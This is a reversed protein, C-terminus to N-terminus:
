SISEYFEGKKYINGEEIIVKYIDLLRKHNQEKDHTMKAKQRAKESFKLAIEENRFIECIYYALMYPADSQYLYGENKHTLLDSIGGVNSAVIPLGLMMAEGLSNPSNEITSPCVFVHSKLYQDCMKREDMVGTFIIHNQLNNKKIQAKIYKGYASLRAKDKLTKAITIDTGGVYLKSEPFESVIMSMAEVMYHFGKIPYSGQSLFISYKECENINWYHNYFTNRLTENCHYYKAVQNFISTCARDWTTRGIVHNVNRIAEIEYKGRKFFKKQQMKINDLRLLDRLTFHNQIKEPIGNMYHKAIFTVLGQLSIVVNINKTNCIDVIVSTHYFETGFIHVIDPKTHEIIKILHHKNQIINKTTLYPFPYYRIKEGKIMQVEEFGNRPFAISMKLNQDNQLGAAANILWGGFPVPEDNMLKSAEPLPVNTIWLINM